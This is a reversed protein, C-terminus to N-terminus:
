RKNKGRIYDEQDHVCFTNNKNKNRKEIGSSFDATGFVIVFLSDRLWICICICNGPLFSLLWSMNQAISVQGQGQRHSTGTQIRSSSSKSLISYKVLKNRDPLKKQEKILRLRQFARARSRACCNRFM